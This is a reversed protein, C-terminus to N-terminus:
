YFRFEIQEHWLHHGLCTCTYMVTKCLGKGFLSVPLTFYFINMDMLNIGLKFYKVLIITWNSIGVPHASSYHDFHQRFLHQCFLINAISQKVIEWHKEMPTMRAILKPQFKIERLVLLFTLEQCVKGVMVTILLKLLIM